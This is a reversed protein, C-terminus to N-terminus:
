WGLWDVAREAVAPPVTHPGAFEEYTLQETGNDIALSQFDGGGTLTASTMVVSDVEDWLLKRLVHAASVPSGHPRYAVSQSWM